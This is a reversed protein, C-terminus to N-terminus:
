YGGARVDERSSGLGIRLGGSFTHTPGQLLRGVALVTGDSATVSGQSAASTIQYQGFAMYAWFRVPKPAPAGNKIVIGLPLSSAVVQRPSM